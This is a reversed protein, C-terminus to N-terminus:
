KNQVVSPIYLVSQDARNKTYILDNNIQFNKHHNICALVKLLLPDKLYGDKIDRLVSCDGEIHPCLDSSLDLLEGVTLNLNNPPSPNFIPLESGGEKHGVLETAELQRLKIAETVPHKSTFL